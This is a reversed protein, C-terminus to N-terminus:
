EQYKKFILTANHGGFGLSNSLSANVEMERKENPIYDLDCDEDENEYNITPPVVGEKIALISAIAEIGGAAGLLHGTMSKTSSIVLKNAHEEFVSKIAMTELKDNQPTSTGHANIYDIDTLNLNSNDIAMQMSRAAGEGNPDPATVHYADGSMGYGAVEGYIKAGRELASELKELILVGSGEGMVFGDREADFPRSARQPDDNRTSMAKMACFGAYSLPTVSAEAGGTIMIDADGRQIIEFADGIANTGSACASVTTTNPGKAGTHISVQGSAMNAIMMPIFFPSIRGPGRKVLRKAQAEFTEMGGIGSGILVGIRESNGEDIELEADDVAMKAAGVAFQAFKDMRKAEKRDMYDKADFDKVEGAIQSDYEDANFHTIKDIGSEGAILSSWYNDLGSGVPSIVGMGTVVVRNSM